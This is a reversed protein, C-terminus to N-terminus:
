KLATEAAQLKSQLEAITRESAARLSQQAAESSLRLAQEAATMARLKDDLGRITEERRAALDSAAHQLELGELIRAELVEHEDKAQSVLSLPSYLVDVRNLTRVHTQIRAELM